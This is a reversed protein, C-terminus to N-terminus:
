LSLAEGREGKKKTARGKGKREIGKLQSLFFHHFKKENGKGGGRKGRKMKLM